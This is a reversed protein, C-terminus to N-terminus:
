SGLKVAAANVGLDPGALSGLRRRLLQVVVESSGTIALKGLALAAGFGVEEDRVMADLAEALEAMSHVIARRKGVLNAVIGDLYVAIDFQMTHFSCRVSDIGPTM